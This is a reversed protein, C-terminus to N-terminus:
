PRVPYRYGTRRPPFRCTRRTGPRRSRGSRPNSPSPRGQSPPALTASFMPNEATPPGNPSVRSMALTTRSAPPMSVTDNAARPPESVMVTAESAPIPNSCTVSSNSANSFLLVGSPAASEIKTNPVVASSWIVSVLLPVVIFM